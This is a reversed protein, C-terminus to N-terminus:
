GVIGFPNPDSSAESAEPGDLTLTVKHWQRM